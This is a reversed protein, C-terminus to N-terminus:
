VNFRDKFVFALDIESTQNKGANTQNKGTTLNTM